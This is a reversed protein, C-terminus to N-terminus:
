VAMTPPDLGPLLGQVSRGDSLKRLSRAGGARGEAGPAVRRLWARSGKRLVCYLPPGYPSARKEGRVRDAGRCDPKADMDRAGDWRWGCPSSPAVRNSVAKASWLGKTPWPRRVETRCAMERRRLLLDM